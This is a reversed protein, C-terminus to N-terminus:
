LKNVDIIQKDGVGCSYDINYEKCPVYCLAIQPYKIHANYIAIASPKPGFSAMIINDHKAKQITDDIVKFGADLTYADYKCIESDVKLDTCIKQHIEAINYKDNEFQTGLQVLLYVKQPNYQRVLQRTREADFGTVIILTTRKGMEIIGSHKFLLRAEGPERSIWGKAYSVPPYYVATIEMSRQSLFYLLTWIINRSMTSIDLIIRSLIPIEAVIQQLDNWRAVPNDSLDKHIVSIDHNDSYSDIKDIIEVTGTANHVSPHRLVILSSIDFETVDKIFGKYAREEWSPYSILINSYHSNKTM